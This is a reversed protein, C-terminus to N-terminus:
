GTKLSKETGKRLYFLIMGIIVLVVGFTLDFWIYSMIKPYTELVGVIFKAFVLVSTIFFAYHRKETGFYLILIGLISVFLGILIKGLIIQATTVHYVVRIIGLVILIYGIAKWMGVDDGKSRITMKKYSGDGLM